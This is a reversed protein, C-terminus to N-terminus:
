PTANGVKALHQQRRWRATRPAIGLERAAEATGIQRCMQATVSLKSRQAAADRKAKDAKALADAFLASVRMAEAPPVGAAALDAEIRDIEAIWDAM